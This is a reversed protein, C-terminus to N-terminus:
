KNELKQLRQHLVIVAQELEAQKHEQADLKTAMDRLANLNAPDKKDEIVKNVGDLIQGIGGPVFPKAVASSIGIIEKLNIKSM